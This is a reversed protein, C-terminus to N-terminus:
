TLLLLVGVVNELIISLFKLLFDRQALTYFGGVSIELPRLSKWVLTELKAEEWSKMTNRLFSEKVRISGQAQGIAMYLCFTTAILTELALTILFINVQLSM